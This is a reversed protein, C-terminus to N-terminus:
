WTMSSHNLVQNIVSLEHNPLPPAGLNANSLMLIRRRQEVLGGSASYARTEDKTTWDREREWETVVFVCLFECKKYHQHACHACSEFCWVRNVEMDSGTGQDFGFGWSEWTKLRLGWSSGITFTIKEKAWMKQNREKKAHMSKNPYNTEFARDKQAQNAKQTETRSNSARSQATFTM